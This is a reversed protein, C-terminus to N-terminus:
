ATRPQTAWVLLLYPVLLALVFWTGGLGGVFVSAGGGIAIQTRSPVPSMRLFTRSKVAMFACFIAIVGLICAAFLYGPQDDFLSAIASLGFIIAGALYIYGAAQIAVKRM